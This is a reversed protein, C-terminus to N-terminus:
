SDNYISQDQRESENIIADLQSSKAWPSYTFKAREKMRSKDCFLKEKSYSRMNILKDSSLECIKQLKGTLIINYNRM